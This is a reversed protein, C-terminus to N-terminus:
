VPLSLQEYFCSPSEDKREQYFKFKMHDVKDLIQRARSEEKAIYEKFEMEEEAIGPRPRYYGHGVNIIVGSGRINELNVLGRVVRDINDAKTRILANEQGYGIKYFLFEAQENLKM